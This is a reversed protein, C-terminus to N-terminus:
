LITFTKKWQMNGLLQCPKPILPGLLLCLFVNLFLWNVAKIKTNLFLLCLDYLSGPCFLTLPFLCFECHQSLSFDFLPLILCALAWTGFPIPMVFVPDYIALCFYPPVSSQLTLGVPHIFALPSSFLPFCSHPSCLLFHLLLIVVAAPMSPFPSSEGSSAQDAISSLIQISPLLQCQPISSRQSPSLGPFTSCAQM